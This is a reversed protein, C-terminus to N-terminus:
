NKTIDIFDLAEKRNQENSTRQIFQAICENDNKANRIADEEYTLISSHRINLLDEPYEVGKARMDIKLKEKTDDYQQQKMALFEKNQVNIETITNDVKNSLQKYLTNAETCLEHLKKRLIISQYTKKWLVLRGTNIATKHKCDICFDCIFKKCEPCYYTTEHKNHQKCTDGYNGAINISRNIKKLSSESLSDNIVISQSQSRVNLSEVEPINNYFEKMAVENEQLTQIVNDNQLSPKTEKEKEPIKNVPPSNVPPSFIEEISKASFAGKESPESTEIQGFLKETSELSERPPGEKNFYLPPEKIKRNSPKIENPLIVIPTIINIPPKLLPLQCGVTEDLIIGYENKCNRYIKIEFVHVGEEKREVVENTEEDYLLLLSSLKGAICYIRTLDAPSSDKRTLLKSLLVDFAHRMDPKNIPYILSSIFTSLNLSELYMKKAMFKSDKSIKSIDSIHKFEIIDQLFQKIKNEKYRQVFIAYFCLLFVDDMSTCTHGFSIPLMGNNLSQFAKTNIAPTNRLLSENARNTNGMGMYVVVLKENVKSKDKTGNFNVMCVRPGSESEM